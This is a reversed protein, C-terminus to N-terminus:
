LLCNMLDTIQLCSRIGLPFISLTKMRMLLLSFQFNNKNEFCYSQLLHNIILIVIAGVKMAPHNVFAGDLYDAMSGSHLLASSLKPSALIPEQTDVQNTINFIDWWMLLSTVHDLYLYDTLHKLATIFNHRLVCM